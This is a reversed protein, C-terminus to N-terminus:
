RTKLWDTLLNIEGKWAVLDAFRCFVTADTTTNLSLIRELAFPSSFGLLGGDSLGVLVGAWGNGVIRRRTIWAYQEKRLKIRSVRGKRVTCVKLELWGEVGGIAFNVDPIGSSTATSEVAQWHGPVNRILWRRLSTEARFM